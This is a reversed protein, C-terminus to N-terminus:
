RPCVGSPFIIGFCWSILIGTFFPPVAMCFQNLIHLGDLKGNASLLGLPISVVVILVFSVLSLCLTVLMKPGM